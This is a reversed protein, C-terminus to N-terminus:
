GRNIGIMLWGNWASLGAGGTGRLGASDRPAAWGRLGSQSAACGGVGPATPTPVLPNTIIFWYFFIYVWYQKLIILWYYYVVIM